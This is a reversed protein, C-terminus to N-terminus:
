GIARAPTRRRSPVSAATANSAPHKASIAAVFAAATVDVTTTIWNEQLEVNIKGRAALGRTACENVLLRAVTQELRPRHADAVAVTLRAVRGHKSNKLEFKLSM